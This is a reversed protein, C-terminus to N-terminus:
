STTPLCRILSSSLISMSYDSLHALKGGFVEYLQEFKYGSRMEEPVHPLLVKEVFNKAESKSTDGISLIQCHQATNWARLWM